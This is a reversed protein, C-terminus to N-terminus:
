RRSCPPPPPPRAVGAGLILAGKAEIINDIHRM